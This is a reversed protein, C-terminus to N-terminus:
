EPAPVTIERTPQEPQRSLHTAAEPDGPVLAGVRKAFRYGSEQFGAKYLWRMLERNLRPDNPDTDFAVMTAVDIDLDEPPKAVLGAISWFKEHPDFPPMGELLKQGETERGAAMLLAAATRRDFQALTDSYQPMTTLIEAAREVRKSGALGLAYGRLTKQFEPFSIPLGTSRPKLTELDVEYVSLDPSIWFLYEHAAGPRAYIPNEVTLSPEHYWVRVPHYRYMTTYLGGEGPAQILVYVRSGPALAPELEKFGARVKSLATAAISLNHEAPVEPELHSSRLAVGAWLFVLVAALGAGWNARALRPGVFMAVGAVSMLGYYPSWHGILAATLLLPGFILALAAVDLHKSIRSDVPRVLRSTAWVVLGSAAVAAIVVSRRFTLHLDWPLNLASTLGHLASQTAERGQFAVYENRGLGPGIGLLGRTWPHVLAWALLVLALALLTRALDRRSATRQILLVVLAPVAIVATEKSLIAAALPLISWAGRGRIALDLALLLFGVALLDQIGSTWGIVFPLAAASGFLLAGYVAARAGAERILIDALLLVCGVAIL